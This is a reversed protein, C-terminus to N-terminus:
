SLGVLDEKEKEKGNRNGWAKLFALSIETNRTRKYFEDEGLIIERYYLSRLNNTNKISSFRRYRARPNTTTFVISMPDITELPRLNHSTFIFQGRGKESLIKLLEGLLYEFIGSDLEDVAVTITRENYVAILLSLISIIKKVGDSEQSLPIEIGERSCTLQVSVATTNDDLLSEGLKRMKVTLGPVIEKLVININTWIEEITTVMDEPIKGGELSLPVQGVRVASDNKIRFGLFLANLAIINSLRTTIVFLECAAYTFLRELILLGVETDENAKQEHQKSIIDFLVNSFVFSKANKQTAGKEINLKTAIKNKGGTLNKFRIKPTFPSIDDGSPITTDIFVTKIKTREKSRLSYSLREEAIVIHSIKKNEDSISEEKSIVIEYFISYDEEDNSLSFEYNIKSFEEGSQIQNAFFDPIRSRRAVSQFIALANILTTKGSGNQGYIGIVNSKRKNKEDFFSIEGFSVNKLHEIQIRKLRVNFDM